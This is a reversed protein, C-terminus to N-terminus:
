RTKVGLVKDYTWGSSYGWFPRGETFFFERIGPIPFLWPEPEEVVAFYHGVDNQVIELYNFINKM